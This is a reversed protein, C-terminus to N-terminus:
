MGNTIPSVQQLGGLKRSFPGDGPLLVDASLVASYKQLVAICDEEPLGARSFSPVQCKRREACTM